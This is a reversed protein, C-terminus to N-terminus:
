IIWGKPKEKAEGRSHYNLAIREKIMRKYVDPCEGAEFGAAYTVTVTHGFPTLLVGNEIEYNEADVVNGENDKLDTITGVPGMPLDMNGKEVRLIAEITQPALAIGLEEEVEARSEKITQQLYTDDDAFDIRLHLKADALSVPEDALQVPTTVTKKIVMNYEIHYGVDWKDENRRYNM